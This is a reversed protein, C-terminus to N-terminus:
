RYHGILKGDADMVEWGRATFKGMIFNKMAPDAKFKEAPTQPKKMPQANAVRADFEKDDGVMRQNAIRWTTAIIPDYEPNERGNPLFQQLKARVDGDTMGEMKKRALAIEQNNAQQAQTIKGANAEARREMSSLQAGQRRDLAALQRDQRAGMAEIQATQREDRRDERLNALREAADAKVAATQQDMFYEVRKAPSLSNVGFQALRKADITEDRVVSGDAESVIRARYNGNGLSEIQVQQGDPFSGDANYLQQLHPIAADYNGASTLKFAKDWSDTYRKGDDSQIYDRFAAAEKHRGQKVYTQVVGTAYRNFTERDAVPDVGDLMSTAGRVELDDDAQRQAENLKLNTLKMTADHTERDRADQEVKLQDLKEQRKREEVKERTNLYGTGFGAIFSAIGSGKM